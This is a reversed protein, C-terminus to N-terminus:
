GDVDEMEEGIDDAAAQLSAPDVRCLLRQACHACNQEYSKPQVGAKGTAFDEALRTLVERWQEMLSTMDMVNTRSKPLIGEEAQYGMWKMGSGARVKAFAVGKLEEAETLLTYLPLQPDDPRPGAWQKPDATYGTKYDVFFVGEGVADIRDVRVDLTLPGVTVLEKREVDAVAFPGRRLEHDLWQQLVSHLRQKLLALYASDWSDRVRLRRSLAADIARTLTRDRDVRGMWRLAEQTKVEKWFYQLARHLMSGSESADLGMETRKPETARLRLEAFALFGCAAQLKLVTAGGAVEYSPLAPLEGDDVEREFCITENPKRALIVEAADLREIGMEGLLPSPRLKGSDDETAYTFLVSGSRRLLDETFASCKAASLAPDTGPMKLIRQLTWSLLPNVRETAPWNADTAHLFVVADFVSGEAETVSMVQVPAGTSPTAFATTQAQLELAEMASALTVRRGSFDLTSVLDLTSEWARTAEFEAATLARDGPWNAAQMLGRVFEMWEALGRQRSPDGARQLYEHVERVWALLTQEESDETRAEDEVLELLAFIEIEARLLLTRRLRNADFRASADVDDRDGGNHGVYPSLLLSSVRELALPGQAWRVLTLADSIMALSALPVGGSFEWPTASLDADISQLEPALTERLAAELEARDEAVNPVVVAVRTGPRLSRPEELFKRIWRAALTKEEHENAVMISARLRADDGSTELSREQVETGCDRLGALLAEQSPQMTGFGVLELSAPAALSKTRVHELLAADLLATSLYGRAACQKSFTEAWGAFVRSDHSVAFSRLRQTADYGAALKWASQALEALSDSSGISLHMADDDIIERWVSHEQAANLLLRTEAGAVILESWLSNTWQSWSLARPPEWAARGGMRQRTDFASRLDGAARANPLVLLAGGDLADLLEFPTASSM